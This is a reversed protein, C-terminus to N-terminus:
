GMRVVIGRLVTREVKAWDPQMGTTKAFLVVGALYIDLWWRCRVEIRLPETSAM